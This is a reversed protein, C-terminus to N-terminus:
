GGMLSVAGPQPAHGGVRSVELVHLGPALPKPLDIRSSRTSSLARADVLRGDLSISVACGEGPVQLWEIELTEAEVATVLEMRYLLKEVRTGEQQFWDRARYRNRARLNLDTRLALAASRDGLQEEAEARIQLYLSSDALHGRVNALAALAATAQQKKTLLKALQLHYPAWESTSIDVGAERSLRQGERTDGYSLAARAAQVPELGFASNAIRRTVAPSLSCSRFLCRDSEWDIWRALSYSTERDVPGAPLLQMAQSVLDRFRHMPPLALIEMIAFRAQRTEGGALMESAAPLQRVSRRLHSELSREFVLALVFWDRKEELIHSVAAWAYPEDPMLELAEALDDNVELWPRITREFTPRDEFSRSLMAMAASRKNASLAPWIELYAMSLFRSPEPQSPAMTRAMELPAEWRRHDTFLSRDLTLSNRLYRSGGMVMAAQWHSHRDELAGFALAESAELADARSEIEELQRSPGLEAIGDVNLAGALLARGALARAHAPDLDSTIDAITNSDIAVPALELVTATITSVERHLLWWSSGNAVLLTVASLINLLRKM